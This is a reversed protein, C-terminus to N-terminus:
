SPRPFEAAPRPYFQTAVVPTRTPFFARDAQPALLGRAAARVEPNSFRYVSRDLLYHMFGTAFGLAVLAPLWSSTRLQTAVAGFIREGYFTGGQEIAEVEFLPLLLVSSAMLFVTLAWPRTNLGHLARRVAGRAPAPEARPTQSALATAVIWHQSTSVVLFLFISQACLAVAATAAIGLVYLVHPLSRRAGFAEGALMAATCAVLILLAAERVTDQAHPSTLWSGSLWPDLWLDQYAADGALVDAFFVLLGGVALTFLRDVRRAYLGGRGIRARYLSLVGFHQAAFHYTVLVYDVIAFTVLRQERSWPLSSDSPLFVAFCGVTIVLPLVIFRVPQARLLPRYAETCYALWTSCLRHGIWFLATTGFYLVDLPSSEPDAHGRSLLLALPALWLASQLWIGDWVPGRLWPTRQTL